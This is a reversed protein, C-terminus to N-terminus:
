SCKDLGLATGSEEWAVYRSAIVSGFSSRSRLPCIIETSILKMEELLVLFVPKVLYPSQFDAVRSMFGSMNSQGRLSSAWGTLRGYNYQSLLHKRTRM